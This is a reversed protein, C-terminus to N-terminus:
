ANMFLPAVAAPQARGGWLRRDMRSDDPIAVVADLPLTRSGAARGRGRNGMGDMHSDPRPMIM